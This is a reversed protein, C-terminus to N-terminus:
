NRYENILEKRFEWGEKWTIILRKVLAVILIVMVCTAKIIEITVMLTVRGVKPAVRKVTPIVYDQIAWVLHIFLWRAGIPIYTTVWYYLDMIVWFINPINMHAEEEKKSAMPLEKRMPVPLEKKEEVVPKQEELEERAMRWYDRGRWLDKRLNERLAEQDPNPNPIAEILRDLIEEDKERPSTKAEELITEVENDAQDALWTIVTKPVKGEPYRRVTDTAYTVEYFGENVTVNIIAVKSM